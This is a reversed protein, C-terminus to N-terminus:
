LQQLGAPAPIIIISFYNISVGKIKRKGFFTRTACVFGNQMKGRHAASYRLSTLLHRRPSIFCSAM